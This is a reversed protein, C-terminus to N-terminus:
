KNIVKNLMSLGYTIDVIKVQLVAQVAPSNLSSTGNKRMLCSIYLYQGRKIDKQSFDAGGILNSEEIPEEHIIDIISEISYEGNKIKELDVVLDKNEIDNSLVSFKKM